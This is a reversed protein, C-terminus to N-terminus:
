PATPWWHLLLLHHTSSFCSKERKAARKSRIFTSPGHIVDTLSSWSSGRPGSTENTLVVENHMAWSPESSTMERSSMQMVIISAVATVHEVKQGWASPIPMLGAWVAPSAGATGLFAGCTKIGPATQFARFLSSPGRAGLTFM